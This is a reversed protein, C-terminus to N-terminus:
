NRPKKKAALTQEITDVRASLADVKQNANQASAGAAQAAQNAAQAAQDVQAVKAELADVRQSVVAIHEDVYKETACGSVSLGGLITLGAMAISQKLSAM